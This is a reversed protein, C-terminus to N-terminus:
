EKGDQSQNRRRQQSLVSRNAPAHCVGGARRERPGRDRRLGRPQPRRTVFLSAIFNTAYRGAGVRQANPQEAVHRLRHLHGYALAGYRLVERQGLLRDAQRGDIHDDSRTRPM